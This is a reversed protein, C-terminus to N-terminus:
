RSAGKNKNLLSWRGVRSQFTEKRAKHAHLEEIPHTIIDGFTEEGHHYIPKGNEDTEFKESLRKSSGQEIEQSEFPTETLGIREEDDLSDTSSGPSPRVRVSPRYGARLTPGRRVSGKRNNISM